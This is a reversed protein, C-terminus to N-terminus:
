GSIRVTLVLGGSLLGKTQGTETTISHVEIGFQPIVTISRSARFEVGVNAYAGPASGSTTGVTTGPYKLDYNMYSLGAGVYPIVVGGRNFYAALGTRLASTTARLDVVTPTGAVDVTAQGETSTFTGGFSWLLDDAVETGYFGGFQTGFTRYGDVTFTTTGVFLGARSDGKRARAPTATLALALALLLAAAAAGPWRRRTRRAPPTGGDTAMGPADEKGCNM